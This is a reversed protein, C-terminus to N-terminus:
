TSSTCIIANGGRICYMERPCEVNSTTIVCDHVVHSLVRTCPFSHLVFVFQYLQYDMLYMKFIYPIIIIIIAFTFSNSADEGRYADKREDLVVAKKNKKTYNNDKTDSM